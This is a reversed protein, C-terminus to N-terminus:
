GETRTVQVVVGPQWGTFPNRWEAPDGEVQYTEGRVTVRSQAGIRSEVFQELSMYITFGSTVANRADQVPESSPRPEVAVGGVTAETPTTWDETAEGSYPDVVEGATLVTIAEGYPYDM